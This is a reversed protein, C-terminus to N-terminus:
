HVRELVFVLKETVEVGTAIERVSSCFFLEVCQLVEYVAQCYNYERDDARIEGEKRWHDPELDINRQDTGVQGGSCM